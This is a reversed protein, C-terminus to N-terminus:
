NRTRQKGPVILAIFRGERQLGLPKRMTRVGFWSPSPANLAL